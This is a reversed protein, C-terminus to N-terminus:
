RSKRSEGEKVWGSTGDDRKIVGPEEDYTYKGDNIAYSWLNIIWRTGLRKLLYQPIQM